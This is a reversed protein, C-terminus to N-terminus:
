RGTTHGQETPGGLAEWVDEFHQYVVGAPLRRLAELIDPPAQEDVGAELLRDRTAPFASPRLASAVRARDEVDAPGLGVPTGVGEPRNAADPPLDEQHLDERTHAEVPEGQEISRTEHHLEEDVRPSHKTNEDM